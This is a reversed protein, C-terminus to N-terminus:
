AWSWSMVFTHQFMMPLDAIEHGPGYDMTRIYVFRVGRYYAYLAALKDRTFFIRNTKVCAEVQGWDGARKLAFLADHSLEALISDVRDSTRISRPEARVFPGLAQVSIHKAAQKNTLSMSRISGDTDEVDVLIKRGGPSVHVGKLCVRYGGLEHPYVDGTPVQYLETQFPNSCSDFLGADTQVIEWTGTDIKQLELLEQVKKSLGEIGAEPAPVFVFKLLAKTIYKLSVVLAVISEGANDIAVQASSGFLRRLAGIVQAVQQLRIVSARRTNDIGITSWIDVPVFAAHTGLKTQVGHMQKAYLEEFTLGSAACSRIDFGYRAFNAHYLPNGIAQDGFTLTKTSTIAALFANENKIVDLSIERPLVLWDPVRADERFDHYTDAYALLRLIRIDSTRIAPEKTTRPHLTQRSSWQFVAKLVAEREAITALAWTEAVWAEAARQSTCQFLDDIAALFAETDDM